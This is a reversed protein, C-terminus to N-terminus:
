KLEIIIDPLLSKMLKLAKDERVGAMLLFPPEKKFMDVLTKLSFHPMEKRIDKIAKLVDIGNLRLLWIDKLEAIPAEILDFMLPTINDKSQHLAHYIQQQANEFGTYYGINFLQDTTYSKLL